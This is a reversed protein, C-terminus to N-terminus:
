RRRRWLHWRRPLIAMLTGALPTGASGRWAFSHCVERLWAVKLGTHLASKALCAAGDVGVQTHDPLHTHHLFHTALLGLHNHHAVLSVSLPLPGDRGHSVGFPMARFHKSVSRRWLGSNLHGHLGHAVAEPVWFSSGAARHRQLIAGRRRGRHARPPRRGRSVARRVRHIARRRCWQQSRAM